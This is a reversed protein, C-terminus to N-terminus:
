CISSHQYHSRESVLETRCVSLKNETSNSCSYHMYYAALGNARVLVATYDQKSAAPHAYATRHGVLVSLGQWLLATIFRPQGLLAKKSGQESLGVQDSCPYLEVLRGV